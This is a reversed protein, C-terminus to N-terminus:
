LLDGCRPCMDDPVMPVAGTYVWGCGHARLAASTSVGPLMGRWRETFELVSEQEAMRQRLTENDGPKM